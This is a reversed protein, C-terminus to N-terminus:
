VVQGQAGAAGVPGAPGAVGRVNWQLPQEDGKCSTGPAPVRLTGTSKSRCANIVDDALLADLAAGAAGAVFALGLVAFGAARVIRRRPKDASM